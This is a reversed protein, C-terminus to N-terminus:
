YNHEVDSHQATRIRYNMRFNAGGFFDSYNHYNNDKQDSKLANFM